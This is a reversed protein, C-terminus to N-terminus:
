ADAAEEGETGPAPGLSVVVMAPRLLRDNLKFGRQVEAMVRGSELEPDHSQQIADHLAPDFTEGKSEFSVVGHKELQSLFKKRVLEMGEVLKQSAEDQAQGLMELARDLDDFVPLFDKLLRENGFRVAEEREKVSRKKYNELDAASRLWKNKIDEGEARVKALEEELAQRTEVLEAEPDTGHSEAAEDPREESESSNEPARDNM